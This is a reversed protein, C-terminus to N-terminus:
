TSDTIAGPHGAIQLVRVTVSSLRHASAPANAPDRHFHYVVEVVRFKRPRNRYDDLSVFEGERPIRDLANLGTIGVREGSNAEVFIVCGEAQHRVYNGGQQGPMVASASTMMLQRTKGLEAGYKTCLKGGLSDSERLLGLFLHETGVHTHGLSEAEEAAYALMRKAPMALPIDQSSNIERVPVSALIENRLEGLTNLAPLFRLLHHSERILGLLLHETEIEQAGLEAAEYRAVFITRRARETYREFM